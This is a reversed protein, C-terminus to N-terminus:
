IPSKASGDEIAEFMDNIKDKTKILQYWGRLDFVNPFTNWYTAGDVDSFFATATMNEMKIQEVFAGPGCYFFYDPMKCLEELNFTNPIPPQALLRLAM